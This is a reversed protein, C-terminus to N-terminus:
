NGPPTPNATFGRGAKAIITNLVAVMDSVDAGNNLDEVSFKNGFVEVVLGALQDLDTETLNAPDLSKALGIAAKLLKWPVFLRSHTAVVENTEPDYLTIQMPTPTM